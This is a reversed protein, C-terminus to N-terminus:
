AMRITPNEMGEGSHLCISPVCLQCQCFLLVYPAVRFPYLPAISGQETFTQAVPLQPIIQEVKFWVRQVLHSCHKQTCLIVGAVFRFFLKGLILTGVEVKVSCQM